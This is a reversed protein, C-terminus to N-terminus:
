LRERRPLTSQFWICVRCGSDSSTAGKTPAHISVRNCKRRKHKNQDSGEHSRPNFSSEGDIVFVADSDSGEHSRPNFSNTIPSNPEPADDSGEHSRPNFGTDSSLRPCDPNDSGEHSRPNFGTDTQRQVLLLVTAGKTPAHISVLVRQQGYDINM